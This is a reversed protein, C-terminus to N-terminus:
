KRKGTYLGGRGNSCPGEISNSPGAQAMKTSAPYTTTPMQDANGKHGGEKAPSDMSDSKGHPQMRTTGPYVRVSSPASPGNNEPGDVVTNKPAGFQSM